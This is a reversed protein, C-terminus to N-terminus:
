ATPGSARSTFRRLNPHFAAALALCALAPLVQPPLPVASAKVHDTVDVSLPPASFGPAVEFSDLGGGFHLTHNGASLPNFMLWYGDSNADDFTGPGLGTVNKDAFTITFNTPSAERHSALNPIAQGDLTAFLQDLKAAQTVYKEAEEKTSSFNPDPGAAVLVNVLPVLLFKGGPVDFSRSVPGSAGNGQGGVFFVPGSQNLTANAGTTDTFPDKGTPEAVAWNWWDATWQSITKGAVTGGADVVVPGGRTEGPSFGLLAALAAAGFVIGLHPACM